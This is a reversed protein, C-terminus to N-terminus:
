LFHQSIVEFIVKVLAETFATAVEEPLKIFHELCHGIAEMVKAKIMRRVGISDISGAIGRVAKGLLKRMTNKVRTVVEPNKKKMELHAPAKQKELAAVDEHFESGTFSSETSM